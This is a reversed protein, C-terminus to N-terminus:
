YRSRLMRNVIVLGIVQSVAAAILVIRGTPDAWLKSSYEPQFFFLYLFLLPGLISIITATIRGAGTVSRLQRQYSMRDRIVSALRELTKPLNGGAERHVSLASAFIRVDMTPVRYAFSKMAVSLSLGMELHKAIRRFEAAVPDKVSDGIMVLAQDLSEGARVARGLLDLAGPFQEEFQKMVRKYAISLVIFCVAVGMSGAVMSYIVDETFVFVAMGVTAGILLFLLAAMTVSTSMGTMYVAREMWVDFRNVASDDIESAQSPLKKLISSAMLRSDSPFFIDRIAMLMAGLAAAIGGFVFIPLSNANLALALQEM